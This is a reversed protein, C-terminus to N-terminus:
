HPPHATGPFDFLTPRASAGVRTAGGAAKTNASFVIGAAGGAPAAGSRTVTGTFSDGGTVSTPNVSLSSLTVSVPASSSLDFELIAPNPDNQSVAVFKSASIM